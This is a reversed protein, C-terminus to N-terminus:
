GWLPAIRQQQCSTLYEASMPPGSDDLAYVPVSSFADQVPAFNWAVGFGGASTGSLVIQSLNPLKPKFDEIDLMINTHGIQPQGMYGAPNTGTHVDGSCYPIYVLSWDRFPNNAAARSIVWTRVVNANITTESPIWEEPNQLCSLKNFCAGGGELYILLKDSNPNVNIAYGTTAGTRCLTGPVTVAEWPLDLPPGGDREANTPPTADDSCGSAVFLSLVLGLCTAAVRGGVGLRVVNAM